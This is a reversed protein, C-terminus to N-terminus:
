IYIFIIVLVCILDTMDLLSSLPWHHRWHDLPHLLCRKTDSYCLIYFLKWDVCKYECLANHMLCICEYACM